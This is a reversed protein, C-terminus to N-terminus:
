PTSPRGPRERGQKMMLGEFFITSLDDAVPDESIDGGSILRPLCPYEGAGTVTQNLVWAPIYPYVVIYIDQVKANGMLGVRLSERRQQSLLVTPPRVIRRAVRRTVPWSPGGYLADRPTERKIGRVGRLLGGFSTTPWIM